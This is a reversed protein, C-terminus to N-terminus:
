TFILFYGLCFFLSPLLLPASVGFLSLLLCHPVNQSVPASMLCASGQTLGPM